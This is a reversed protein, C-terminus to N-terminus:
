ARYSLYALLEYTVFVARFPAIKPDLLMRRRYARFGQTTDTWKFDSALSLLPAHIFRIAFDRLKPTNESAKRSSAHLRYLIWGMKLRASLARFPKRIMKIMATLPSLARIARTLRLRM